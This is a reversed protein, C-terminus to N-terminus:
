ATLHWYTYRDSILSNSVMWANEKPENSLSTPSKPQHICCFSHKTVPPPRALKFHSSSVHPPMIICIELLLIQCERSGTSWKQCAEPFNVKWMQMFRRWWFLPTFFYESFLITSCFLHSKTLMLFKFQPWVVLKFQIETTAFYPWFFRKCM